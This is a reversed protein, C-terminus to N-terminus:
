KAKPVFNSFLGELFSKTLDPDSFIREGTAKGIERAMEVGETDIVQVVAEAPVPETAQMHKKYRRNLAHILKERREPTIVGREDESFCELQTEEAIRNIGIRDKVSIPFIVNGLLKPFMADALRTIHERTWFVHNKRPKAKMAEIRETQPAHNEIKAEYPLEALARRVALTTPNLKFRM